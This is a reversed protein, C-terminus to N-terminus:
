PERVTVHLVLETEENADDEAFQVTIDTQGPAVGTIYLMVSQKSVYDGWRCSVVGFDDIAFRVWAQGPWDNSIVVGRDEGPTLTLETEETWLTAATKKALEAEFVEELPLGPGTLDLASVLDAPVALNLNQADTYSAFVVGVAEGYANLLVGGSSGSSIPATFHLYPYDPDDIGFPLRAILGDTICDPIGLPCTLSYVREGPTLADSDGLELWPFRRVAGGEADTRSIRAVAIDQLPDYFLVEELPYIHGDTTHALAFRRGELQHYSMLALGDPSIFFGSARSDYEGKALTDEDTFTEMYLVASVSRDYLEQASYVRKGANVAGAFRTQKLAEATVVGKRYLTEILRNGTGDPLGLATVSMLALDERLLYETGEPYEGHTLGIEEALALSTEWTFDADERYGLVRLLMTVYDRAGVSMSAGFWYDEIGRVLGREKAYGLYVDAWGGDRFPSSLGAQEAAAEEGLLRLLMVVAEARTAAREPAFSVGDGRLLGLAGLAEIAEDGSVHAAAAPVFLAAAMAACLLFSLLTRSLKM